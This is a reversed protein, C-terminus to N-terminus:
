GRPTRALNSFRLHDIEIRIADVGRHLHDFFPGCCLCQRRPHTMGFCSFIDCCPKSLRPPWAGITSSRITAPPDSALEVFGDGERNSEPDITVGILVHAKDREARV